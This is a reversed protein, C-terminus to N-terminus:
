SAFAAGGSARIRELRERNGVTAFVLRTDSHALTYELQRDQAHLNIPSVVHGGYMAGLFITAASLGNEVMFSVTAGPPLGREALLAAFAICNRRLTAYDIALDPEPAFLFPAAPQSAAHADIVARFTAPVAADSAM